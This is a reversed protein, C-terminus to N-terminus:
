KGLLQGLFNYLDEVEDPEMMFTSTLSRELGFGEGHEYEEITVNVKRLEPSSVFDIRAYNSLHAFRILRHDDREATVLIRSPDDPRVTPKMNKGIKIVDM